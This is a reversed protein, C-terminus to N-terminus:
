IFNVKKAVVKHTHIKHSKYKKNLFCFGNLEIIKISDRIGIHISEPCCMPLMMGKKLYLKWTIAPYESDM